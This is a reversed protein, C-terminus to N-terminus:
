PRDFGKQPQDVPQRGISEYTVGTGTFDQPPWCNRGDIVLPTKMTQLFDSARLACVADWETLVFCVEADSLAQQPTACYQVGHPVISAFKKQAAADWARVIAGESILQRVVSLSPADRVDDTGPKFALGLVAACRGRLSAYYRHAKEIPLRKQSENVEIAAHVTKLPQGANEALWYLAKTDKPFCSGGYGIGARLFASGIRSDYGMGQAVTTVDAGVRECLNAIENIYSIKLALFNNSAYKIMEASCLDTEVTPLGFPAYMERLVARTQADEAGIVIRSAHMTDRVATGQSLFEPNSAVRIGCEPLKESLYRELKKCTGIPVTSKVVVVPASRAYRVIDDAVAYVYDLCCSGDPNEPTGVGILIIQADSYALAPDTTYCLRARNKQMLTELESEYIPARGSRLLRIKDADVDACTVDHGIEALCVGTVLGVYGTGAVTIKM